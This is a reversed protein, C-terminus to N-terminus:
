VDVMEDSCVEVFAGDKLELRVGHMTSPVFHKFRRHTHMASLSSYTKSCKTCPYEKHTFHSRLHLKLAHGDCTRFACLYCSLRRYRRDGFMDPRLDCHARAQHRAYSQVSHVERCDVCVGKKSCLSMQLSPYTKVRSMKFVEGSLAKCFHQRRVVKKCEPCSIHEDARCQQCLGGTQPLHGLKEVTLKRVSKHCCVCKKLPEPCVVHYGGCRCHLEIRLSSVDGRARVKLGCAKWWATAEKFTMAPQARFGPLLRQVTTHMNSGRGNTRRIELPFDSLVPVTSPIVHESCEELGCPCVCRVRTGTVTYGAGYHAALYAAPDVTWVDPCQHFAPVDLRVSTLVHLERGVLEVRPFADAYRIIGRKRFSVLDAESLGRVVITATNIEDDSMWEGEYDSEFDSSSMKLPIIHWALVSIYLLYM